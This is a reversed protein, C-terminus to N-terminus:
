HVMNWQRQKGIEVQHISCSGPGLISIEATCFAGSSTLWPQPHFPDAMTQQESRSQISGVFGNGIATWNHTNQTIVCFGPACAVQAECLNSEGTAPAKAKQNGNKLSPRHQSSICIRNYTKNAMHWAREGAVDNLWYSSIQWMACLTTRQRRM